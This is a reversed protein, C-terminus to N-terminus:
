SSQKEQALKGDFNPGLKARSGAMKLNPHSIETRTNRILIVECQGQPVLVACM